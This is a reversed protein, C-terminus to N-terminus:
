GEETYIRQWKLTFTENNDAVHTRARVNTHVTRGDTQEVSSHISGCGLLGNIALSIVLNTVQTSNRHKVPPSLHTCKEEYTHVATSSVQTSNNVSYWM